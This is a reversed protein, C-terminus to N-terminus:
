NYVWNPGIRRIKEYNEGKSNYEIVIMYSTLTFFPYCSDM